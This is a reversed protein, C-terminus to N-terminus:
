GGEGRRIRIGANDVIRFRRDAEVEDNGAGSFEVIEMRTAIVNTSGDIGLRLGALVSAGFDHDVILLCLKRRDYISRLDGSQHGVSHLSVEIM